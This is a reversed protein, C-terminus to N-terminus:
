MYVIVLGLLRFLADTLWVLILAIILMPISIALIVFGILIPTTLLGIVCGLVAPVGICATVLGVICAVTFLAPVVFLWKVFFVVVRLLGVIWRLPFAYKHNYIRSLLSRFATLDIPFM